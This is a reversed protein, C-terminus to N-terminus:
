HIAMSAREIPVEGQNLLTGKLINFAPLEMTLQGGPNIELKGGDYLVVYQVPAVPKAIVPYQSPGQLNQGIVAVCTWDPVIGLSWNRACNWDTPRGPQGGKWVNMKQSHGIEPFLGLFALSAIAILNKM